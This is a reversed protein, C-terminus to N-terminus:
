SVYGVSVSLKGEVLRLRVLDPDGLDDEILLVRATPHDM